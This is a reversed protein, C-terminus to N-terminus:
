WVDALEFLADLWKTSSLDAQGKSDEVWAESAQQRCEGPDGAEGEELLGLGIKTFIAVYIGQSVRQRHTGDALVSMQIISLTAQWWVDLATVVLPHRRNSARAQLNSSTYMEEDGQQWLALAAVEEATQVKTVVGEARAEALDDLADAAFADASFVNSELLMEARTLEPLTGEIGSSGDPDDDLAIFVM